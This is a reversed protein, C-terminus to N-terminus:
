LGERARSHIKELRQELQVAREGLWQACFMAGTASRGDLGGGNVMAGSLAQLIFANCANLASFEDRFELLERALSSTKGNTPKQLKPM